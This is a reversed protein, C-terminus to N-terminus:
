TTFSICLHGCLKVVFMDGLGAAKQVDLMVDTRQMHEAGRLLKMWSASKMKIWTELMKRKAMTYNSKYNERIQNLYKTPVNLAEGLNYWEYNRVRVTAKELQNLSIELQMEEPLNDFAGAGVLCILPPLQLM